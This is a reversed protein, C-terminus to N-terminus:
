PPSPTVTPEATVRASHSDARSRAKASWSRQSGDRDGQKGYDPRISLNVKFREVDHHAKGGRAIAHGNQPSSRLLLDDINRLAAAHAAHHDAVRGAPKKAGIGIRNLDM